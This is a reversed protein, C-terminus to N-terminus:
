QPGGLVLGVWEAYRVFLVIVVPYLLMFGILGLVFWLWFFRSLNM